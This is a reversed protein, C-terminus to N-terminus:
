KLIYEKYKEVWAASSAVVALDGFVDVILGSLRDGESNVLRFANTTSSPLGLNSRLEIAANIRTELLNEVNLPDAFCPLLTTFAGLSLPKPATLLSSSM